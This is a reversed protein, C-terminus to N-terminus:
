SQALEDLRLKLPRWPLGVPRVSKILGAITAAAAIVPATASTLSIRRHARVVLTLLDRTAANRHGAVVDVGVADNGRAEQHLGLPGRPVRAEEEAVHAEVGVARLLGLEDQVLRRVTPRPDEDHGLIEAAARRSLHRDPHELRVPDSRHDRRAQAVDKMRVAVLVPQQRHDQRALDDGPEPALEVLPGPRRDGHVEVRLGHARGAARLM